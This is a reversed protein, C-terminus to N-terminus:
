NYQQMSHNSSYNIDRTLERSSIGGRVWGDHAIGEILNEPNQVSKLKDPIMPTTHYKEFSKETMHTLSRRNTNQMGQMMNSEVNPDVSGRGM